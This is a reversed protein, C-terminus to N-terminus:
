RDRVMEGPAAGRALARRALALHGLALVAYCALALVSLSWHAPGPNM